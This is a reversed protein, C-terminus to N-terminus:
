LFFCHDYKSDILVLFRKNSRFFIYYIWDINLNFKGARLLHGKINNEWPVWGRTGPLTPVTLFLIKFPAIGDSFM